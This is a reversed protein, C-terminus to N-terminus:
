KVAAKKMRKFLKLAVSVFGAALLAVLVPNSLITTIMTTVVTMIDTVGGTINSFGPEATALVYLM